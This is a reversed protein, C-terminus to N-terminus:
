RLLWDGCKIEDFSSIDYKYEYVWAELGLATWVKIRRYEDGEYEDLIDFLDPEIMYVDGRVINDCSEAIYGPYFENVKYMRGCVFTTDCYYSDSLLPSAIDRFIGYTFLYEM